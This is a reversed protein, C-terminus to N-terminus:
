EAYACQADSAIPASLPGDRRHLELPNKVMGIAACKATPGKLNARARSSNGSDFTVEVNCAVAHLAGYLPLTIDLDPIYIRGSLTSTDRELNGLLSLGLLRRSRLGANPNLTDLKWVGNPKKPETMWYLVGCYGSGDPLFKIAYEKSNITAVWIGDIGEARIQQPRGCVVLMMVVVALLIRM